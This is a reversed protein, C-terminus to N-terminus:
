DQDTEDEDEGKSAVFAKIRDNLMDINDIGVVSLITPYIIIVNDEKLDSVDCQIMKYRKLLSLSNKLETTGISTKYIGTKYIETLLKGITTSIDSSTNIDLSGKHYLLRLVLIIITDLKKLRVRNRDATTQIYFIKYTDVCFLNYDILSFYNRILSEMELIEYYDSRDEAKNGYIYNENLLKNCLRSFNNKKIDSLQQYSQFFDECIMNRQASAM